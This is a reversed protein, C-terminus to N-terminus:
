KLEAIYLAGYGGFRDVSINAKKSKGTKKKKKKGTNLILHLAVLFFVKYFNLRM